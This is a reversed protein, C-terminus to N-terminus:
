ARTAPPDLALIQAVREPLELVAIPKCIYCQFGASLLMREDGPMALATLAIVPIAASRPDARLTALVDPGDADPLRVDLLILDPSRAHTLAIAEAATGAEITSYGHFQLVDRALKADLENDDVILILEPM